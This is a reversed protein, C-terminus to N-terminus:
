HIDRASDSGETERLVSGLLAEADLLHIRDATLGKLFRTPLVGETTNPRILGAADIEVRGEVYDVRFGVGGAARMVLVHSQQAAIDERSLELLRALDWVTGVEGHFNMVGLMGEAAGPLPALGALPVVQRLHALEVAYRETGLFFVMAPLADAATAFASRRTALSEARKRLLDETRREDFVLAAALAQEVKALKRKTEGWDIRGSRM